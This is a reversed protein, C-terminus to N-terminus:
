DNVNDKNKKLLLTGKGESIMKSDKVVQCGNVFVHIIKGKIKQGLYPTAKHKHEINNETITDKVDDWITIDADFGNKLEGKRNNLGLFRAPKKTLLPILKELSLGRKQGETFLIPLTFQLGSIGGWAKFFDGSELQKIKPPAPSHDSALFDFGDNLLYRWLLDNNHKTRIPPACKHLTSADPINESNFYLYHPCTEVTLKNTTQKREKIIDIGESASLHVIHVKIDFRQQIQLALEIASTEWHQPRSDLYEQYSKPNIVTPVDKDELECHLLLPIDHKKLIPAITELHAKSVNPFEEIGSHSLFGKIGFVGENLLGEIDKSNSPVVGGYFGCNVHLKDRTAKQKIKFAEVTTTVPNANLPMDILTTVGGCAAAKTATHFGEWYDRGPENIHVHADIIGPMIILNQYNFFPYTKLRNYGKFISHIKKDKIHLTAEILENNIFCRKSYILFNTM